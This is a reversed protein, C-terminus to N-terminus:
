LKYSRLAEGGKQPKNTLLGVKAQLQHLPVLITFTTFYSTFRVGKMKEGGM